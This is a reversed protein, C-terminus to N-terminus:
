IRGPNIGAKAMKRAPKMRKEWPKRHENEFEKVGTEPVLRTKKGTSVVEGFLGERIWRLVTEPAVHYREALEEASYLRELAKEKGIMDVAQKVMAAIAQELETM